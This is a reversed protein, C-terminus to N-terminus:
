SSNILLNTIDQVRYLYVYISKKFKIEEYACLMILYSIIM